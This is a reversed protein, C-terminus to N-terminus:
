QNKTVPVNEDNRKLNMTTLRIIDGPSLGGNRVISRYIQFKSFQENNLTVSKGVARGIVNGISDGPYYTINKKMKSWFSEPRKKLGTDAETKGTEPATVYRYETLGLEYYVDGSGDKEGFKFSSILCPMSLPTDSVTLQCVSDGTRMTELQAIYTYPALGMMAFPYDQAPFFGSLTLTRLGTKGMMLYDGFNNINVTGHNTNVSVMLESPLVPFVVAASESSLSITLSSAAQGIANLLSAFFSSM